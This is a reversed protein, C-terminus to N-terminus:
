SRLRHKAAQHETGSLQPCCGSQTCRPLGMLASTLAGRVHAAHQGQCKCCYGV